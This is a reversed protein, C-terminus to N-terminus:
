VYFVWWSIVPYTLFNNQLACHWAWDDSAPISFVWSLILIRHDSFHANFMDYHVYWLSDAPLLKIVDRHLCWSIQCWVTVTWHLQGMFIFLFSIDPGELMEFPFSYRKVSSVLFNTGPRLVLFIEVKAVRHTIGASQYLFVRFLWVHLAQQVRLKYM